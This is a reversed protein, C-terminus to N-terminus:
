CRPILFHKFNFSLTSSLGGTSNGKTNILETFDIAGNPIAENKSTKVTVISCKQKALEKAAVITGYNEPLTFIVKPRSSVLQRSIEAPLINM